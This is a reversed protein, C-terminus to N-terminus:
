TMSVHVNWFIYSKWSDPPKTRSLLFHMKHPFGSPAKPPRLLKLGVEEPTHDGKCRNCERCCTVINEWNKKGGRAVPIVHDYTLEAPPFRRGCYQCRHQDRSYINARTFKVQHHHRKVNIYSLLRLVSPLKISVSVSRIEKDYEAVVEVKEQFLMRIARRWSVVQIPEYTANLVLTSATDM